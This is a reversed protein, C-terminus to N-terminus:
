NIIIAAVLKISRKMPKISSFFFPFLSWADTATRPAQVGLNRCICECSFFSIIIYSEAMDQECQGRLVMTFYKENIFDWLVRTHLVNYVVEHSM